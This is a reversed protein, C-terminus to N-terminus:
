GRDAAPFDCPGAHAHHLRCKASSCPGKLDLLEREREALIAKAAALRHAPVQDAADIAPATIM